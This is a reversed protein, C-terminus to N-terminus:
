RLTVSRISNGSFAIFGTKDCAPVIATGECVEWDFESLKIDGVQKGKQDIAFYEEENYTALAYEGYFPSADAYQCDIVINGDEDVYGVFGDKNAVPMLGNGFFVDTRPDACGALLGCALAAVLVVALVMLLKKKM